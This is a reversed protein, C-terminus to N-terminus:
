DGSNLRRWTAALHETNDSIWQEVQKLQPSKLSGVLIQGTDIRFVAEDEAYYAHIHPPNHDKAYMSITVGDFFALRPM